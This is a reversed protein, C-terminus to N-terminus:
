LGSLCGPARVMLVPVCTARFVREAVSGHTWRSIGSRGHSAMLILDANNNDAYNTIEDAPDGLLVETRVKINGQKLQKAIRELYREGQKQKKGVALPVRVVPEPAPVSAQPATPYKVTSAGVIRETVTVLIIEETHCGKAISELHPLVCEALKSGDLPVVVKKYM